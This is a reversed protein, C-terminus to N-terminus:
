KKRGILYQTGHVFYFDFYKVLQYLNKSFFEHIDQENVALYEGSFNFDDWVCFGGSKLKPIINFTDSEVNKYEHGGDVFILDFEENSFRDWNFKTSDEIILNFRNETDISRALWGTKIEDSLEFNVYRSSYSDFNITENVDLSFITAKSNALVISSSFGEWTGIELYNTPQIARVIERLLSASSQEM